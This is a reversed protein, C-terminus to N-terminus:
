VGCTLVWEMLNRILSVCCQVNMCTQTSFVYLCLWLLFVDVDSGRSCTGRELKQKSREKHFKCTRGIRTYVHTLSFSSEWLLSHSHINWYIHDTISQHSDLIYGAKQESLSPIPELLSFLSFCSPHISLYLISPCISESIQSVAKPLLLTLLGKRYPPKVDNYLIRCGTKIM